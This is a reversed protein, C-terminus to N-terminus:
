VSLSVPDLPPNVTRKIVIALEAFYINQHVFISCRTGLEHPYIKSKFPVQSTTSTADALNVIVKSLVFDINLLM